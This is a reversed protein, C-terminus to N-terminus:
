ENILYLFLYTFKFVKFRIRQITAHNGSARYLGLQQMYIPKSELKQICEVVVKPVKVHTEHMIVTDLDTNFCNEDLDSSM